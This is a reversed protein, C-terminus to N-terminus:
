STSYRRQLNGILERKWHRIIHRGRIAAIAYKDVSNMSEIKAQIIKGKVLGWINQYARYEKLFDSCKCSTKLIIEMENKVDVQLKDFHALNNVENNVNKNKFVNRPIKFSNM